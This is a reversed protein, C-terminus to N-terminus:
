GSDALRRGVPRTASRLWLESAPFSDEATHWRTQSRTMAASSCAPQGLITTPSWLRRSRRRPAWWPPPIVGRVRPWPWPWGCAAIMCRKHPPPRSCGDRDRDNQPTPVMGQHLAKITALIRRARDWAEGETRGLIPRTSLSFTLRHQTQRAVARVEEMFAATAKLPEGWLMYVDVVPALASIAAPSGGGGYIPMIRCKSAAFTRMRVSSGTSNERTILRRLPPGPASCCPPMSRPAAIARMM